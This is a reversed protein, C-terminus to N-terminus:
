LKILKKRIQQAEHTTIQLIYVGSAWHETPIILSEGSILYNAVRNGLQNFIEVSQLNEGKVVCFQTAPNPFVSVTVEEEDCVQANETFVFRFPNAAGVLPYFDRRGSVDQASLYYEVTDGVAAASAFAQWSNGGQHTLNEFNWDGRNVRYILMVSDEVLNNGSLSVIEASIPTNVIVDELLPYHSIFIMESDALEHTRCHLADTNEWPTYPSEMVPVITYGPMAMRYVELADEDWPSGTQPVFVFNNLILSNTYPTVGSFAGPTYVRFVQYHNGWPTLSNEFFDAVAEYDSYRYDSPDVQGILVKDVALFKGWCDIHEIYDGLPDEILHYEEVGLYNHAIASLSSASEYPNEDLLLTTSAATGYGDAMFNGGTHVMPMNYYDLNLFNAVAPLSADDNPRAPRNYIFDIVSLNYDIDVIFWPGYDRTWYTDHAITHFRVKELNISNQLFYNRAPITDSSHNVIVHVTVTQTMERILAVPIGLPYAVLVGAMPQFEAISQVPAPPFSRNEGLRHARTGLTPISAQEQATPAHPFRPSCDYHQSQALLMEGGLLLLTVCLLKCFEVLNRNIM